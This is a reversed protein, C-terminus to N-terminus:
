KGLLILIGAALAVIGMLAAPIFVTHLLLGIGALILYIALLLMGISKTFNMARESGVGLRKCSFFAIALIYAQPPPTHGHAYKRKAFSAVPRTRGVPSKRLATRGRVAEEGLPSTGHLLLNQYATIKGVAKM